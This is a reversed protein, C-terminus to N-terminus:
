CGLLPITHFCCSCASVMTVLDPNYLEDMRKQHRKRAVVDALARLEQTVCVSNPIIQDRGVRHLLTTVLPEMSRIKTLVAVKLDSDLSLRSARSAREQELLGDFTDVAEGWLCVVSEAEVWGGENRAIWRNCAAWAAMWHKYCGTDSLRTPTPADAADAQRCAQVMAAEEKELRSITHMHNKDWMTIM